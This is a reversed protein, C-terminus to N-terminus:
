RWHSGSPFLPTCVYLGNLSLNQQCSQGVPCSTVNPSCTTYIPDSEWVCLDDICEWGTPCVPWDGCWDGSFTCDVPCSEGDEEEGCQGDGCLDDVPTECDQPCTRWTEGAECLDNGCTIGPECVSCDDPCTSCSEGQENVCANDGCYGFVGYDECTTQENEWYCLDSGGSWWWACRDDCDNGDCWDNAPGGDYMGCNIELGPLEPQPVRCPELCGATENCVEYCWDSVVPAAEVVVERQHGFYVILVAIVLAVRVNRVASDSM